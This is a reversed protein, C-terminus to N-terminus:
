FRRWKFAITSPVGRRKKGLAAYFSAIAEGDHVYSTEFHSIVGELMAHKTASSKTPIDFYKRYKRLAAANLVSLGHTEDEEEDLKLDRSVKDFRKKDEALAEESNVAPIRNILEPGYCVGDPDQGCDLCGDYKLSEAPPANIPKEHIDRPNRIELFSEEIGDDPDRKPQFDLALHECAMRLHHKCIQPCHMYNINVVLLLHADNIMQQINVSLPCVSQRTCSQWEGDIAELLGCVPANKQRQFAFQNSTSPRADVIREMYEADELRARNFRVLWARKKQEAEYAQLLNRTEM